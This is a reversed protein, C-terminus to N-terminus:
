PMKDTNGDAFCDCVKGNCHRCCDQRAFRNNGLGTGEVSRVNLGSRLVNLTNTMVSKQNAEIYYCRSDTM